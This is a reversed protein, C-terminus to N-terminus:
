IGIIIIIIGRHRGRTEGGFGQICREESGYTVHGDMENKIQKNITQKGPKVALQPQIKV